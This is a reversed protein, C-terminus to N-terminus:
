RGKPKSQKSHGKGVKKKRKKIANIARMNFEIEPIKSAVRGKRRTSARSKIRM